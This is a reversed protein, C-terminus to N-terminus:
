WRLKSFRLENVALRLSDNSLILMSLAGTSLKAAESVSGEVAFILDLLAQMGQLPSYIFKPNNPKPVVIPDELPLSKPFFKFFSKLLPILM